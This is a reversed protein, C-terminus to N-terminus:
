KCPHTEAIAKCFKLFMDQSMDKKMLDRDDSNLVKTALKMGFFVKIDNLENQKKFFATLYDM